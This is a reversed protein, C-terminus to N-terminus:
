TCIMIGTIIHKMSVSPASYWSGSEMKTVGRVMTMLNQAGATEM